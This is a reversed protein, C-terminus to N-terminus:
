VAAKRAMIKNRLEVQVNVLARIRGGLISHFRSTREISGRWSPLRSMGLEFHVIQPSLKAVSCGWDPPYGDTSFTDRSEEIM